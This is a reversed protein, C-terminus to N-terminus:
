ASGETIWRHIVERDKQNMSTIRLDVAAPKQAAGKVPMVKAYVDEFCHAAQCFDFILKIDTM